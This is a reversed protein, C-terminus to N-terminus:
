SHTTPFPSYRIESQKWYIYFRIGSETLNGPFQKSGFSVIDKGCSKGCSGSIKYRAMLRFTMLLSIGIIGVTRSPRFVKFVTNKMGKLKIQEVRNSCSSYIPQYLNATEFKSLMLVSKPATILSSLDIIKFSRCYM